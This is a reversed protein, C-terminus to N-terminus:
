DLYFPEIVQPPQIPPVDLHGQCWVYNM